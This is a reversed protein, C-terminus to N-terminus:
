RQLIGGTDCDHSSQIAKKGSRIESITSKAIGTSHRLEVQSLGSADMLHRLMAADSAHAFRDHEDECAAALDSLADLYLETGTSLRGGALLEDMVEQATALEGESRISTLPFRKILTLYDDCAKGKFSLRVSIKKM